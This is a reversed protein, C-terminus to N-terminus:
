QLYHVASPAILESGDIRGHEMHEYCQNRFTPEESKKKTKEM